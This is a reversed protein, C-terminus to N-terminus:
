CLSNSAHLKACPVNASAGKTAAHQHAPHLQESHGCSASEEDQNLELQVAKCHLLTAMRVCIKWIHLLMACGSMRARRGHSPNALTLRLAPDACRPPHVREEAGPLLRHVRHQPRRVQLSGLHQVRHHILAASLALTM